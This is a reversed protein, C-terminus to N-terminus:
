FSDTGGFEEWWAGDISFGGLGVGIGLTDAWYDHMRFDLICEFRFTRKCCDVKVLCLSKM